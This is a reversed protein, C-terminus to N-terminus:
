QHAPTYGQKWPHVLTRHTPRDDHIGPFRERNTRRCISTHVPHGRSGASRPVTHKGTLFVLRSPRCVTHGAYHDTFRLGEKAMQDLRPTKVQKQGYSGLDGYGLDDAVILIINPRQPGTPGKNPKPLVPGQALANQSLCFGFVLSFVFRIVKTM